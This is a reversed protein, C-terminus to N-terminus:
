LDIEGEDWGRLERTYAVADITKSGVPYKGFWEDLLNSKDCAPTIVVEGNRVRLEVRSGEFLCLADKIEEPLTLQGGSGLVAESWKGDHM